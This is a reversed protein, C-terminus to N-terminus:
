DHEVQELTISFSIRIITNTTKYPVNIKYSIEINSNAPPPSNFKLGPHSFGLHFFGGLNYSRIGYRDQDHDYSGPDGNYIGPTAHRLSVTYSKNPIYFRWYRAATPAWSYIIDYRSTRSVTSNIIQWNENDNSYEIQMLSLYNNYNYDTCDRTYHVYNCLKPEQLDLWIPYEQNITAETPYFSPTNKIGVFFPDCYYYSSNSGVPTRTTLDGFRAYGSQCDMLATYSEFISRNHNNNNYLIYDQPSIEINNVFVKATNEIFLPCQIDFVSTEGDGIGIHLHDIQYDPFISSDPFHFAGIAPIGFTRLLLGNYETDLITWDTWYRTFKNNEQIYGANTSWSFNKTWASLALDSSYLFDLPSSYLTAFVAGDIIWRILNGYSARPYIGNDGFGTHEITVYFTANIYIVDTDTKLLSLQNGEADTLLAHTALFRAYYNTLYLGVETITEGNYQNAELKIQITIYSTPFDYHTAVRTGQHYAIASFLSTRTASITGTGRGFQIGDVAYTGGQIRNNLFQNLIVNYGVATQKIKGSKADVVQVDFRNHLKVKQNINIM